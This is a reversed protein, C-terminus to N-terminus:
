AHRVTLCKWASGPSEMWLFHPNESQLLYKWAIEPIQPCLLCKRPWAKAHMWWSKAHDVSFCLCQGRSCTYHYFRRSVFDTQLVTTRLQSTCIGSELGESPSLCSIVGAQLIQIEFWLLPFKEIIYSCRHWAAFRLISVYTLRLRGSPVALFRDYSTTLANMVNWSWTRCRDCLLLLADDVITIHRTKDGFPTINTALQRSGRGTPRKHNGGFYWGSWCLFQSQGGALGCPWVFSFVVTELSGPIDWLSVVHLSPRPSRWLCEMGLPASTFLLTVVMQRYVPDADVHM